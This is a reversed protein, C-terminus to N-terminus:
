FTYGVALGLGSYDMDWKFGDKELDTSLVRYALVASWNRNFLYGAGVVANWVFDSDGAGVDGRLWIRWKDTHLPVWRMGVFADIWDEDGGISRQPLDIDVDMSQYRVGYLAQVEHNIRYVGGGEFIFNKVTTDINGAPTSASPELKVYMGDLFYGWKGKHSEFRLSLAADLDDVLDSFSQDIEQEVGRIGVTGDLSTAWLYLFLTSNWSDGSEDGEVVGQAMAPQWWLSGVLVALVLKMQAIYRTRSKM